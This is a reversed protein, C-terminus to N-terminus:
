QRGGSHEKEQDELMLRLRELERRLKRDRAFLLGVFGLLVLWATLLGYFLFVFNRAYQDPTFGGAVQLLLSLMPMM